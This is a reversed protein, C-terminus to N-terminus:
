EFRKFWRVICALAVVVSGLLLDYYNLILLMLKFKIVVISVNLYYIRSVVIIIKYCFVILKLM